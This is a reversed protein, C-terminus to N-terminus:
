RNQELLTQYRRLATAIAKSPTKQTKKIFIHLVIIQENVQTVYVARAINNRGSLRMEWILAGAVTLPKVHPEKVGQPGFEALLRSVRSFKAKLDAELANLEQFVDENLLSVNWTM